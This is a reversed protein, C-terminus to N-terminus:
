AMKPSCVQNNGTHQDPRHWGFPWHGWCCLCKVMSIATEITELVKLQVTGWGKFIHSFIQLAKCPWFHRGRGHKLSTIQLYVKQTCTAEIRTSSDVSTGPIVTVPYGPQELTEWKWQPSRKLTRPEGFTHTHTETGEQLVFVWGLICLNECLHAMRFPCEDELGQNEPAINTELIIVKDVSMTNKFIIKRGGKQHSIFQKKGQLTHRSTTWANNWLAEGNTRLGHKVLTKLHQYVKGSGLLKGRFISPQFM